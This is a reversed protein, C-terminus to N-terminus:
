KITIVYLLPMCQLLCVLSSRQIDYRVEQIHHPCSLHGGSYQRIHDSVGKTLQDITVKSADLFEDSAYSDEPITNNAIMAGTSDLWKVYYRVNEGTSRVFRCAFKAKDTSNVKFQHGDIISIQPEEKIIPFAAVFTM